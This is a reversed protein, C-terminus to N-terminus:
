KPAPGFGVRLDGLRRKLSDVGEKTVATGRLNLERLDLLDQLHALGADTVATYAMQLRRLKRLPKLHVLGADTILTRDLDLDELDVLNKLHELGADGIRTSMVSLVRLKSFPALHALGKDTVSSGRLSLSRLDSLGRLEALDGDGLPVGSLALEQWTTRQKALGVVRQPTVKTWNLNVESLETLAALHELSDDTISTGHLDVSRLRVFKRLLRVEDDTLKRNNATFGIATVPRGPRAPDVTVAPRFAGLATFAQREAEMEPPEGPLRQGQRWREPVIFQGRWLGRKEERAVIEYPTMGSHHALAWGNRVLEMDLSVDGVFSSGRLRGLSDRELREGFAYLSVPRDGILKKVFDAAEKGCPYFKGEIIAQQELDPADGVGAAQIRTGDEFALTNADIVTVKGTLRTRYSDPSRWQGRLRETVFKPEDAQCCPAFCLGAVAAAFLRM